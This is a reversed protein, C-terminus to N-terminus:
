TVTPNVFSHNNTGRDVNYFLHLDKPNGLRHLIEDDGFPLYLHSLVGYDVKLHPAETFM